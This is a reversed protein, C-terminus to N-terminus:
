RDIKHDLKSKTPDLAEWVNADRQPRSSRRVPISSQDRRHSGQFTDKKKRHGQKGKLVESPEEEKNSHNLLEEDSNEPLDPLEDIPEPAGIETDVSDDDGEPLSVDNLKEEDPVPTKVILGEALCPDRGATTFNVKRRLEKGAAEDLRLNKEDLRMKNEPCNALRLVSLEIVKRSDDALVLFTLQHGVDQAFGVFSGRIEQGKQSGPKKNAHRACHAIDWFM